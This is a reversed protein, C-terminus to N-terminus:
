ESKQQKNENALSDLVSWDGKQVKEIKEEISALSKKKDSLNKEAQKLEATVKVKRDLLVRVLGSVSSKRENLMGSAVESVLDKLKVTKQLEKDEQFTSMM